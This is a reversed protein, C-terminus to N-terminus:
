PKTLSSDLFVFYFSSGIWAIATIVHAWRLLLNAWDLLYADVFFGLCLCCCHGFGSNSGEGCRARHPHVDCSHTPQPPWAACAGRRRTLLTYLAQAPNM